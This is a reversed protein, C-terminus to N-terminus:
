FMPLQALKLWFTEIARLANVYGGYSNPKSMFANAGEKYTQIIHDINKTTTFVIIPITRMRVDSKLVQIVEMGNKKPMNLDLLILAPLPSSHHGHQPGNHFVYDLLEQGDHVFRLLHETQLEDWADRALLCDDYDDDAMLVTMQPRKRTGGSIEAEELPTFVFGENHQELNQPLPPAVVTTM